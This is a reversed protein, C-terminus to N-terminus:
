GMQRGLRGVRDVSPDTQCGPKRQYVKPRRDEENGRIDPPSSVSHQPHLLLPQLLHEPKAQPQNFQSMKPCFVNPHSIIKKVEVYDVSSNEYLNDNGYTEDGEDDNDGCSGKYEGDRIKEPCREDLTKLSHYVGLFSADISTPTPFPPNTVQHDSRHSMTSTELCGSDDATSPAVRSGKKPQRPVPPPIDNETNVM